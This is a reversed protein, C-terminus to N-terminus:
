GSYVEEGLLFPKRNVGSLIDAPEEPTIPDFRLYVVGGPTPLGHRYILEGYDRDFTLIIRDEHNARALIDADKAGPLAEAVFLVDHGAYRLRNVSALPFYENALFRM